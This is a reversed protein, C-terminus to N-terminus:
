IVSFAVKPNALLIRRDLELFIDTISYLHFLLKEAGKKIEEFNM